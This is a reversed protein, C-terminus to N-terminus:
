IKAVTHSVVVDIEFEAPKKCVIKSGRLCLLSSKLLGFCVKTRIWNSSISQPLDRMESIMQALRSYFKQCERGMSAKISFVLPTFTGYYIQLTRKNYARKKEQENM